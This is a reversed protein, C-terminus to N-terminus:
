VWYERHLALIENQVAEFPGAVDITKQGRQFVERCPLSMTPNDDHDGTLTLLSSEEVGYVVRGINAWYVCGSCMVCPEVSTYLTCGQLFEPSYEIVARRVLAAEAHGTGREQREINEQKMLVEGDPGALVAGFPHNKNAMSQRAVDNTLQLLEIDQCSISM